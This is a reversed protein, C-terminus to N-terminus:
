PAWGDLVVHTHWELPCDDHWVSPTVAGEASVIHTAGIDLDVPLGCACRIWVTGNEERGWAPSPQTHRKRFHARPIRDPM